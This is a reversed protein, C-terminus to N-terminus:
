NNSRCLWKREFERTLAVNVTFRAAGRPVSVNVPRLIGLDIFDQISWATAEMNVEEPILAARDVAEFPPPVMVRRMHYPHTNPPCSAIVGRHLTFGDGFLERMVYLFQDRTPTQM